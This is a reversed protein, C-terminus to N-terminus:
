VDQMYLAVIEGARSDVICPSMSLQDPDSISGFALRASIFHNRKTPLLSVVTPGFGITASRVCSCFLPTGAALRTYTCRLAVACVKGVLKSLVPLLAQLLM